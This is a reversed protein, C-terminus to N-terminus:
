CGGVSDDQAFDFSKYAIAPFPFANALLEGGHSLTAAPFPTLCRTHTGSHPIAGGDESIFFCCFRSIMEAAKQM